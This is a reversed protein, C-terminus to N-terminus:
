CSNTWVLLFLPQSKRAATTYYYVSLPNSIHVM